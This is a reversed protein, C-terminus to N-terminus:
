NHQKQKKQKRVYDPAFQENHEQMSYLDSPIYHHMIQEDPELEDLVDM